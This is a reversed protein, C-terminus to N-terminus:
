FVMVPLLSKSDATIHSSFQFTTENLRRGADQIRMNVNNRSTIKKSFNLKRLALFANKIKKKIQGGPGTGARHLSTGSSVNVSWLKPAQPVRLVM